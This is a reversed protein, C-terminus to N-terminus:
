APQTSFQFTTTTQPFILCILFFRFSNFQTQLEGNTIEVNDATEFITFLVESKVSEFDWTLVARHDDNKIVIEHFQGPRLKINQYLNAENLKIRATVDDGDHEIDDVNGDAEDISETIYLQKPIVGGNHIM